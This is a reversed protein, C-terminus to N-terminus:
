ILLGNLSPQLKLIFTWKLIFVSLDKYNEKTKLLLKIHKQNHDCTNTYYIM